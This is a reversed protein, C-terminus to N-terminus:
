AKHGTESRSEAQEEFQADPKSSDQEPIQKAEKEGDDM